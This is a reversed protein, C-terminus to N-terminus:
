EFTNKSSKSHEFLRMNELSKSRSRSIKVMQFDSLRIKQHNQINLCMNELSKSRLHSIKVM